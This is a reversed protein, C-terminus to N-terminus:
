SCTMQRVCSAPNSTEVPFNSALVRPAPSLAVSLRGRVKRISSAPPPPRRLSTHRRAKPPMPLPPADARRLRGSYAEAARRGSARWLHWRPNPATRSCLGRSLPLLSVRLTSRFAPQRMNSIAPKYFVDGVVAGFEPGTWRQAPVLRVFSYRLQRLLRCEEFRVRAADPVGSPNTSRWRTSIKM